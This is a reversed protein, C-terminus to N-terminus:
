KKTESSVAKKAAKEAAKATEEVKDAAKTAAKEVFSPFFGRAARPSVVGVGAM